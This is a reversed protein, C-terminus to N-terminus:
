RTPTYVSIYYYIVVLHMYMINISLSDLPRTCVFTTTDLYGSIAHVFMELSSNYKINYVIIIISINISLSDLPRTCVFTTTDLYGRIAYVGIENVKGFFIQINYFSYNIKSNLYRKSLINTDINLHQKFAFSFAFVQFFVDDLLKRLMYDGGGFHYKVCASAWMSRRKRDAASVVTVTM